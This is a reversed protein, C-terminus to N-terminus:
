STGNSSHYMSGHRDEHHAGAPAQAPLEHVPQRRQVIQRTQRMHLTIDGVAQRDLACHQLELRGHDDVTGGLGTDVCALLVTVLRVADVHQTGAVDRM